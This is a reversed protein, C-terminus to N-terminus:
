LCLGKRFTANAKLNQIELNEIHNVEYKFILFFTFIGRGTLFQTEFDFCSVSREMRIEPWPAPGQKGRRPGRSDPVGEEPNGPGNELAPSVGRSALAERLVEL